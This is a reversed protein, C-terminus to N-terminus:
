KVFFTVPEGLGRGDYLYEVLLGADAASERVPFM